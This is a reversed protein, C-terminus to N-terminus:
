EFDGSDDEIEVQEKSTLSSLIPTDNDISIASSVLFSVQGCSAIWSRERTLIDHRYRVRTSPINSKRIDNSQVGEEM